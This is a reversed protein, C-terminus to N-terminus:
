IANKNKIKNLSSLSYKVGLRIPRILYYLFSLSRPLSIFSYDKDHPILLSKIVYLCLPIWNRPHGRTRLDFAIRKLKQQPWEQAKTGQFIRERVDNTLQTVVTDTQLRRAISEPLAMDLLHHALSLGLLLMREVDLKEARQLLQDWNINAHAQSLAAIDCVWILKDWTHRFKCGHICLFLLLDETALTLTPVNNFSMLEARSWLAEQEVPSRIVLPAIQWHLDIAVKDKDNIFVQVKITDCLPSAIAAYGRSILM